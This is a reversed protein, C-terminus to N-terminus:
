AKNSLMTASKQVFADLEQQQQKLSYFGRRYNDATTRVYKFLKHRLLTRVKEKSSLEQDNEEHFFCRYKSM